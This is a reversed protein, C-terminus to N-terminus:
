YMNDNAEYGTGLQFVVQHVPLPLQLLVYGHRGCESEFVVRISQNDYGVIIWCLIMSYCLSNQSTKDIGPDQM